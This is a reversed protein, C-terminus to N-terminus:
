KGLTSNDVNMHSNIFATGTNSQILPKTRSLNGRLTNSSYFDIQIGYHNAMTGIRDLIGTVYTLRLLKKDEQQKQIAVKTQYKSRINFIENQLAELTNWNPPVHDKGSRTKCNRSPKLCLQPIERHSNVQM